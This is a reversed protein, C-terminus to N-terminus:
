FLYTWPLVLSSHVAPFCACQSATSTTGGRHNSPSCYLIDWAQIGNPARDTKWKKLWDASDCSKRGRPGAGVVRGGGIWDGGRRWRWWRRRRHDRWMAHNSYSVYTMKTSSATYLTLYFLAYLTLYFLIFSRTDHSCFQWCFFCSPFIPLSIYCAVSYFYLSLYSSHFLAPSFFCLLFVLKSFLTVDVTRQLQQPKKNFWSTKHGRLCAATFTLIKAASCAELLVVTVCQHFLKPNKEEWKNECQRLSGPHYNFYYYIFIFSFISIVIIIIVLVSVFITFVLM